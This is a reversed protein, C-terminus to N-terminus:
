VRQFMDPPAGIFLARPQKEIGSAAPRASPAVHARAAVAVFDPAESLRSGCDFGRHAVLQNVRGSQPSNGRRDAHRRRAAMNKQAAILGVRFATVLLAAERRPFEQLPPQFFEAQRLLAAYESGFGVTKPDAFSSRNGHHVRFTGPIPRAIRRHELADDLLVQDAANRNRFTEEVQSRQRVFGRAVLLSDRM